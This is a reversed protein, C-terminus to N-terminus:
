GNNVQKAFEGSIQIDLSYTASGEASSDESYGMIIGDGGYPIDSGRDYTVPIIADPGTKLALDMIEENSLVATTGDDKVEVIGAMKLTITHGTVTVKSNGKDEKTISSKTNAAINLTDQTRGVLRKGQVKIGINYGEM